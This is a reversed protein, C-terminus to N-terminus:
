RIEWSEDSATSLEEFNYTTAIINSDVRDFRIYSLDNKRNIFGDLSAQISELSHTAAFIQCDFESALSSIMEWVTSLKSYHIAADFEDLFLAGGRCQHMALVISLVTVAGDGMFSIPIVKGSPIEAHLVTQGNIQLIELNCVDPLFRQIIEIVHKKKGKQIVESYRQVLDPQNHTTFRSLMACPPVSDGASFDDRIQIGNPGADLFHRTLALKGEHMVNLTFGFNGTSTEAVRQDVVPIATDTSFSQREWRYECHVKGGRTDASLSFTDASGFFAEKASHLTAPLQRFLFPRLIDLPGFRDMLTFIAELFTTKGTGNLGGVITVRRITDVEIEKFTRYNSIKISRILPRTAMSPVAKRDNPM